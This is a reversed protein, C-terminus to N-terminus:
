GQGQGSPGPNNGANPLRMGDKNMGNREFFVRIITATEIMQKEIRPICELKKNIEIVQDKVQEHTKACEKVHPFDEYYQKEKDEIKKYLEGHAKSQQRDNNSVHKIIGLLLTGAALLAVIGGILAGVGITM